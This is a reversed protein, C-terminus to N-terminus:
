HLISIAIRDLFGAQTHVIIGKLVILNLSRTQTTKPCTSQHKSGDCQIAISIKLSNRSDDVICPRAYIEEALTLKTCDKGRKM